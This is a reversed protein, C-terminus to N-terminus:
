RDELQRRLRRVASARGPNPPKAELRVLNQELEHRLRVRRRFREEAVAHNQRNLSRRLAVWQKAASKRPTPIKYGLCRCPKGCFACRVDRGLSLGRRVAERCDFCVWTRNSM